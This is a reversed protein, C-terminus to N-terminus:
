LLGGPNRRLDLILGDLNKGHSIRDIEKRLTKATDIQFSSISAYGFRGDLLEAKVSPVHIAQRVIEVSYREGGSRELELEIKSGRKGRLARVAESLNMNETSKGDLRLIKDGAHIGKQDAPSGKIPSVVMLQGDRVTVEIGIGDFKGSTDVKLERFVDAPLYSSHPDLTDFMGQIAGRILNQEDVTEVYNEEIFHLVSSLVHLEKFGKDSLASASSALCVFVLFFFFGKFCKM